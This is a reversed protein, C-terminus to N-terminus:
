GRGWAFVALLFVAYLVGAAVACANSPRTWRGRIAAIAFAVTLLAWVLTHGGEVIALRLGTAGPVDVGDGVTAFIATVVAAGAFAVGYLARARARAAPEATM